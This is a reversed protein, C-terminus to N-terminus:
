GEPLPQGKTEPLFPLALLALLYILSVWCCANRFADMKEASTRASQSLHLQLVGLTFPGSAAVFRGVNYCFSTGTSRLRLPFLEPLYIAFGAFLALQFFGMVPCLVFIQWPQALFKFVVVTSAFACLASLAFIKKRGYNQALRTFALMGFFSGTNQVIMTLGVWMLRKGPIQAAPVHQAALANGIIYNVLEPSFFGIGWLGVVGAVCLLMGFLAPKRWRAEGLLSAYSGFRVGTAKGKARAIVWKEPEKLKFQFFVCILPPVASLFFLLRWAQGSQPYLSQWYGLVIAAIGAIINGVASLAQLLGLAPSRAQDPLSDACLAVALGFVGGVGLGAAFRYIGFDVMSASFGSLGTCLGYLLITIALTRARGIRDGMAGFILGGTAWGVVFISTMYGGWEKLSEPATAPPMLYSVAPNRAIIFAQQGLCDFLWALSALVFLDKQYRDLTRWWSQSAPVAFVAQAKNEMVLPSNWSKPVRESQINAM